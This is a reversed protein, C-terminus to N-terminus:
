LVKDFGMNAWAEAFYPEIEIAKDYAKIAENQKSMGDLALGKGYWVIEDANALKTDNDFAQLAENYKGALLFSIGVLHSYTELLEGSKALAAKSENTKGLLDLDVGKNHWAGFDGPEIEIAKDYAQVAENYKGNQHFIEGETKWATENQPDLEIAKDFAKIADDYKGQNSLVTGKDFSDEATQQCQASTM